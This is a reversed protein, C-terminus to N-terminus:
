VQMTKWRGRRWRYLMLMSRVFADGVYVAYIGHLGLGLAVGLFWGVPLRVLWIGIMTVWMPYRTDGAGRLGGALVNGLGMFPQNWCIIALVEGGLKAVAPDDTFLHMLPEGFLAFGAGILSMMAVCWRAAIWVGEEAQRVRGAGLAQGVLTTAAMAFGFGPLFSMQVIMMSARQTAYVQTGLGIVIIGYLTIGLSMMFQEGATPIGIGLMRRVLSRDLRWPIRERLSLVHTPRLFVWLLLACGVLRAIGAAWASGAVGLAPIPGAGYILAWAAGANIVNIFATIFMPTRTDGTGRLVASGVFMGVMVPTILGSIQLYLVGDAAAQHDLGLFDVFPLALAYLTVTLIAAVGASLLLAQRFTRRAEAGNGAGIAHAVLVTAGMMVASLLTTVLWTIQQAGGVGALADTGLHGVLATDVFGILSQLLNEVIVPWSLALVQRRLRSRATAPLAGQGALAEEAALAPNTIDEAVPTAFPQALQPESPVPEIAPLSDQEIRPRRPWPVLPRSDPLAPADRGARPLPKAM